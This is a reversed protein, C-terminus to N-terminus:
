DWTTPNDRPVYPFGGFSEVNNFKNKCTLIDGDCGPYAIVDHALEPLELIPYRLTLVSGEHKTIMRRHSQWVVWGLTFYDDDYADFADATLTLKDASVTAHAQVAFSAESLGCDSDFVTWNCTPGYRFRPVPLKLLYEFGVCTAVAQLGRFSVERVQGIFIVSAYAPSLDTIVRMVQVWVPEAPNMAVFKIVPHLVRGARIELRSIEAKSDYTVNGRSIDAPSYGIGNYEVPSDSNTYRWHTSGWWFDYVDATEKKVAEEKTILNQDVAKM